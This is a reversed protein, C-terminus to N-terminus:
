LDQSPLRHPKSTPQTYVPQAEPRLVNAIAVNVSHVLERAKEQTGQPMDGIIQESLRKSYDRFSENDAPVQTNEALTSEVRDLANNIALLYDQAPNIRRSAFRPMSQGYSADLNDLNQQADSKVPTLVAKIATALETQKDATLHADERVSNNFDLPM